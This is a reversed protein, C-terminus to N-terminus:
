FIYNPKGIIFCCNLNSLHSIDVCKFIKWSSKGSPLLEAKQVSIEVKKRSFSILKDIVFIVLPGALFNQTLPSQVLRGSGHMIMFIYLLIYLSHTFWFANFLHRRAYPMAFVYMIIIIVTLIIGTIGPVYCPNSSTSIDGRNKNSVHKYFTSLHSSHSM